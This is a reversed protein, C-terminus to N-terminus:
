ETDPQIGPHALEFAKLMECEHAIALLTPYPALDVDFRRANFLQPVLCCDAITPTNGCIFQGRKPSNLITKELAQLGLENWHRIWGKKADDTLKLEETLYKLVRLNNVPHMECAIANAIQRVYARDEPASPLLPHEPYMEELYEIIALSQSISNGNEFLLPVLQQPNLTRFDHSFQEGGHRNLHVALYEFPLSKLNLAIRVRYSSSSHRLM